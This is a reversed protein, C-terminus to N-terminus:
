ESEADGFVAMAAALINATVVLPLFDEGSNVDNRLDSVVNEPKEPKMVPLAHWRECEFKDQATRDVCDVHCNIIIVIVFQCDDLGSM